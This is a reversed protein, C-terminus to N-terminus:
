GREHVHGPCKDVVYQAQSEGDTSTREKVSVWECGGGEGGFTNTDEMYTM